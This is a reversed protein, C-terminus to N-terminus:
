KGSRARIRNWEEMLEDIRTQEQAVKANTGNVAKEASNFIKGDIVLDISVALLILMIVITIILAILTIGKNKRM